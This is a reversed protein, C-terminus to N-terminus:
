QLLLLQGFLDSKAVITQYPAAVKMHADRQVPEKGGGAVAPGDHREAVVAVAPRGADVVEGLDGVSGVAEPVGSHEGGGARPALVGPEDRRRQQALGFAELEQHGEARVRDRGGKGCLLGGRVLADRAPAQQQVDDGTPFVGLLAAETVPEPVVLAVVAGALEERDEVARHRAGREVEGALVEVDFRGRHVSRGVRARQDVETTSGRGGLVHRGAVDVHVEGPTLRGGHHGRPDIAQTLQGCGM